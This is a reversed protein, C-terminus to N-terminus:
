GKARKAAIVMIPKDKTEFSEPRPLLEGPKREKPVLPMAIKLEEDSVEYIGPLTEKGERVMEVTKPQKKADVDLKIDKFTAVEKGDAYLTLKGDKVVLKEPGGKGGEVKKGAVDMFQVDWSGELKKLDAKNEDDAPRAVSVLLGIALIGSIWKM